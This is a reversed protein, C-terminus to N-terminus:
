QRSVQPGLGLAEDHVRKKRGKRQEEQTVDELFAGGGTPM